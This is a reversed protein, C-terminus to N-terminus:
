VADALPDLYLEAPDEPLPGAACWATWGLQGAEGLQLPPVEERKLVVKVDWALEDGVYGRVLAALKRLSESGPLLRRYDEFTLPGFVIRFKQQYDWVRSGAIATSGLTGTEPSEGLRCRASEPLEIWQGVFQEIAVRMGFYGELM